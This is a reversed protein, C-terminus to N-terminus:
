KQLLQDHVICNIDFKQIRFEHKIMVVVTTTKKFVFFFCCNRVLMINVQVSLEFACKTFLFVCICLSGPEFDFFM